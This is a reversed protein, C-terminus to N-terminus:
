CNVGAAALTRRALEHSVEPSSMISPTVVARM